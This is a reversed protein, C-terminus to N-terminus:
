GLFDYNLDFLSMQEIESEPQVEAKKKARFEHFKQTYEYAKGFVNMCAKYLKPEYIEVTKLEELVRQNYPCGVCGTRKLGYVEYCASHKVGFHECYYEKDADTFYFIPRFTDAKDEGPTFCNKYNAARIGGEAKRIGTM